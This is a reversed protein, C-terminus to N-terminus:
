EKDTTGKRKLIFRSWNRFDQRSEMWKGLLYRGREGKQCHFFITERKDMRSGTFRFAELFGLWFVSAVM